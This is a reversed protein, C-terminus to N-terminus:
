GAAATARAAISEIHRQRADFDRAIADDDAQMQDVNQDAFGLVGMEEYGKRIRPGWLGVDKVIPVIRQFLSNRFKTMFGSHYMHEGCAVPDLGLNKWVEVADFRDRM